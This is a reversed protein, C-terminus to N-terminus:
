TISDSARALWGKLFKGLAPNNVVLERYHNAQLIGMRAVCDVAVAFNLAQITQPGLIGDPTCSVAEQAIKHARSAGMDVAMDLIKTAVCQADIRGYGYRDWWDRQYIAVADEATLNKIDLDPYSKRSIGFNTEGGPDNQDWTYGGEHRMITPIALEFTSM